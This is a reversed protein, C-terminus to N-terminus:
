TKWWDIDCVVLSKKIKKFLLSVEILFRHELSFDFKVAGLVNCRM